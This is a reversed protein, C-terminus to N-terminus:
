IATAGDTLTLILAPTLTLSVAAELMLDRYGWRYAVREAERLLRRGIGRRRESHSVAM